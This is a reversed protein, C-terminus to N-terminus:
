ILPTEWRRSRLCNEVIASVASIVLARVVYLEQRLRPIVPRSRWQTVGLWRIRWAMWSIRGPLLRHGGDRWAWPSVPPMHGMPDGHPHRASMRCCKGGRVQRRASPTWLSLFGATM